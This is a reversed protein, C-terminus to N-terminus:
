LVTFEIFLVIQIIINCVISEYYEIKVVVCKVLSYVCPFFFCFQRLFEYGHRQGWSEIRKLRIM